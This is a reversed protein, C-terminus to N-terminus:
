EGYEGAPISHQASDPAAPSGFAVASAEQVTATEIEESLQGALTPRALGACTTSPGSPATGM